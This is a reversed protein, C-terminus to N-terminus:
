FNLWFILSYVLCSSFSIPPTFSATEETWV